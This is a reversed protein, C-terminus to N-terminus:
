NSLVSRSSLFMFILFPQSQVNTPHTYRYLHHSLRLKSICYQLIQHVQGDAMKNEAWEVYNHLIYILNFSRANSKISIPIEYIPKLTTKTTHNSNFIIIIGSM